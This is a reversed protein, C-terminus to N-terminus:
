SPTERQCPSKCSHSLSSFSLNILADDGHEYLLSVLHDPRVNRSPPVHSIGTVIAAPYLPHLINRTEDPTTNRSKLKADRKM